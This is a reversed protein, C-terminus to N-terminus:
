VRDFHTDRFGSSYKLGYGVARDMGIHAFWIVGLALLLTSTSLLGAAVLVAPLLYTHAINYATAGINPGGLYGIMSLDPALLLLAFVLWSGGIYWYLLLALAFM